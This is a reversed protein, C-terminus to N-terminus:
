NFFFLSISLKYLKLSARSKLLILGNAHIKLSNIVEKEEREIFFGKLFKFSQISNIMLYGDKDLSIIVELAENIEICIIENNHGYFIDTKEIYFNKKFDYVWVIVRCDKSGTIIMNRKESVVICTILNNHMKPFDLKLEQNEKFIKFNNDSYGATIFYDINQFFYFQSTTEHENLMINGELKSEKSGSNGREKLIHIDYKSFISTKLQIPLYFISLNKTLFYSSSKSM